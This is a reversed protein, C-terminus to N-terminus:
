RSNQKERAKIWALRIVIAIAEGPDSYGCADILQANRGDLGLVERCYDGLPRDYAPLDELEIRTLREASQAELDALLVDAATEPDGPFPNRVQLRAFELKEKPQHTYFWPLSWVAYM